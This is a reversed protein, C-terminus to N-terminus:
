IMPLTLTKLILGNLLIRKMKRHNFYIYGSLCISTSFSDMELGFFRKLTKGIRQREDSIRKQRKETEREKGITDVIRMKGEELMKVTRNKKVLSEIKRISNRLERFIRAKEGRLM